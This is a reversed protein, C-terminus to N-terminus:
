KGRERFLSQIDDPVSRLLGTIADPSLENGEIFNRLRWCRREIPIELSWLDILLSERETLM